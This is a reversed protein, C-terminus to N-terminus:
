PIVQYAKTSAVKQTLYGLETRTQKTDFIIEAFINEQMNAIKVTKNQIRKIDEELPLFFEAKKLIIEFNRVQGNAEKAMRIAYHLKTAVAFPHTQDLIIKIDIM